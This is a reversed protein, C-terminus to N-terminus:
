KLSPFEKKLLFKGFEDAVFVRKSFMTSRLFEFFHIKATMCFNQRFNKQRINLGGFSICRLLVCHLRQRRWTFRYTFFWKSHVSIFLRVICVYLLICSITNWDKTVMLLTMLWFFCTRADNSLGLGQATNKHTFLTPKHAATHTHTHTHADNFIRKVM